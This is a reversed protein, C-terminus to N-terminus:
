SGPVCFSSKSLLTCSEKVNAAKDRPRHHVNSRDLLPKPSPMVVAKKAVTIM